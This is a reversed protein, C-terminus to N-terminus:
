WMVVKDSHYGLVANTYFSHGDTAQSEGYTTGTSQGAPHQDATDAYTLQYSSNPNWGNASIYHSVNGGYNWNKLGNTDVATFTAGGHQHLDWDLDYKFGAETLTGNSAQDATFVNASQNNNLFSQEQSYGASWALSGGDYNIEWYAAQYLFGYWGNGWGYTNNPGSYLNEGDGTNNSYNDVSSPQWTHTIFTTSGPGCLDFYFGWWDTRPNHVNPNNYLNTRTANYIWGGSNNAGYNNYTDPEPALKWNNAYWWGGSGPYDPSPQSAAPVPNHVFWSAREAIKQNISAQQQPTPNVHHLDPGGGGNGYIGNPGVPPAQSPNPPAIAGGAASARSALACSSAM